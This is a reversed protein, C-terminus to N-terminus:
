VTVSGSGHQNADLCCTGHGIPGDAARAAPARQSSDPRPSHLLSTPVYPRRFAAAPLIRVCVQLPSHRPLFSVTPLDSAFSPAVSCRATSPSSCIRLRDISLRDLIDPTKKTAPAPKRIHHTVSSRGSCPPLPPQLFSANVPSRAHAPSTLHGTTPHNDTSEAPSPVLHHASSLQPLLHSGLTLHCAPLSQPLASSTSTSSSISINSRRRAVISQHFPSPPTRFLPLLQRDRALGDGTRKWSSSTHTRTHAPPVPFTLSSLPPMYRIQLSGAPPGRKSLLPSPSPPIHITFPPHITSPHHHAPPPPCLPDKPNPVCTSSVQHLMCGSGIYVVM